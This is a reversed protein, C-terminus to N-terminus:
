FETRKVSFIPIPCSNLIDALCLANGASIPIVTSCSRM